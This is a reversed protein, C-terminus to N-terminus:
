LLLLLLLGDEDARARLCVFVGSGTADGGQRPKQGPWRVACGIRRAICGQGGFNPANALPVDRLADLIAFRLLGFCVRLSGPRSPVPSVPSPQHLRGFGDPLPV